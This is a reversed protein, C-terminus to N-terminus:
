RTIRKDIQSLCHWCVTRRILASVQMGILKLSRTATDPPCTYGHVQRGFPLRPSRSALSPLVISRTDRVAPQHANGSQLQPTSRHSRPRHYQPSTQIVPTLTRSQIRHHRKSCYGGGAPKSSPPLIHLGTRQHALLRRTHSAQQQALLWGCASTLQLTVAAPQESAIARCCVLTPTTPSRKPVLVLLPSPALWM